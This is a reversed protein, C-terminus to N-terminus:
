LSKFRGTVYSFFKRSSHPALMSVWHYQGGATPARRPNLPFWIAHVQGYMSALESLSAFVAATGAWVIIFGYILGAPGGSRPDDTM